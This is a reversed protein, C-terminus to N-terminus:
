LDLMVLQGVPIEKGKVKPTLQTVATGPNLVAALLRTNNVSPLVFALPGDNFHRSNEPRILQHDDNLRNQQYVLQNSVWQVGQPAKNATVTYVTLTSKPMGSDPSWILFAYPYLILTRVIM